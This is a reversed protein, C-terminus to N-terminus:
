CIEVQPIPVIFRGGSQHFESQQELIEKKFNWTLLLLYDPKLELLQDPSCIPLQGGPTYHNQKVNSRDFVYDLFQKDIGFFNLLTSGKASAGYAAIKKGDKKLNHLLALLDERLELVREAFVQYYSYNKVGMEAEKKLLDNVAASITVGEHAIFYRLSGGHIDVHEVNVVSLGHRQVLNNVATLSFYSFHEHYITDFERNEVLDVLYPAEIVAVGKGPRLIIKLGAVFENPDPVHAFVNHAHVIDAFQNKAALRKALSENFFEVLTPIGKVEEAVRAINEAPEIGLVPVGQEKYFQLLYGDNSAIEMVSSNKDLQYEPILREVLAKAHNVMTDSFSSFYLYHGFLVDPSVTELIQVLTCDACFVLSLPFRSETENLQDHRLLANALPLSGLELIPLLEKSQCSRCNRITELM